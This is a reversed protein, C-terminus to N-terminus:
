LLREPAVLPQRRQSGMKFSLLGPLLSLCSIASVGRLLRGWDRLTIIVQATVPAIWVGEIDGCRGIVASSIASAAIAAASAPAARTWRWARRGESPRGSWSGSAKAGNKRTILCREFQMMLM